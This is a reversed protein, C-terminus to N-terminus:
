LFTTDEEEPANKRLERDELYMHICRGTSWGIWALVLFKLGTFNLLSVLIYNLFWVVAYVAAMVTTAVYAFNLDEEHDAVWGKIGRGLEM